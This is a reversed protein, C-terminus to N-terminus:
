MLIPIAAKSGIENLMQISLPDKEPQPIDIGNKLFKYLITKMISPPISKSEVWEPDLPLCRLNLYFCPEMGEECPPQVYNFGVVHFGRNEWFREREEPDMSDRKDIEIQASTMKSSTNVEEFVSSLYPYGLVTADRKLINISKNLLFTGVGKRRRDNTITLYWVVGFCINNECGLFECLCGGCVKEKLKVLVLHTHSKNKRMHNHQYTLHTYTQMWRKPDRENPDPYNPLYIEKHYKEFNIGSPNVMDEVKLSNVFNTKTSVQIFEQTERTIFLINQKLRADLQSESLLWVYFSRHKELDYVIQGLGNKSLYLSQSLLINKLLKLNDIIQDSYEKLKKLHEDASALEEGKSKAEEIEALVLKSIIKRLRGGELLKKILSQLEKNYKPIVSLIQEAEKIETIKSGEWLPILKKIKNIKLEYIKLFLRLLRVSENIEKSILTISDLKNLFVDQLFGM